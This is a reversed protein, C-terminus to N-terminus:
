ESEKRLIICFATLSLKQSACPTSIPGHAIKLLKAPDSMKQGGSLFIASFIRQAGKLFFIDFNWGKEIDINNQVRLSFISRASESFRVGSTLNRGKKIM